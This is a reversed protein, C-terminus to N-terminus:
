EKIASFVSFVAVANEPQIIGDLGVRVATCQRKLPEIRRDNGVIRIRLPQLVAAM